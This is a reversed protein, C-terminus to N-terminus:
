DDSGYSYSDYSSSTKTKRAAKSTSGQKNVVIPTKRQKVIELLKKTIDNTKDDM